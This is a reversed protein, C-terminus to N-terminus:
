PSRAGTRSLLRNMFFFGLERHAKKAECTEKARVILKVITQKANTPNPWGACSLACNFGVSLGEWNPVFNARSPDGDAEEFRTVAGKIKVTVFIFSLPVPENRCAIRSALLMPPPVIWNLM